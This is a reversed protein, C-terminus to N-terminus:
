SEARRIIEIIQEPSEKAYMMFESGFTMATYGEAPVEYMTVIKLTDVYFPKDNLSSTLRIFKTMNWGSIYIKRTCRVAM